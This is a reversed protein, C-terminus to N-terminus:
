SQNLKREIGILFPLLVTVVAAGVSLADSDPDAGGVLAVVYYLVLVVVIKATYELFWSM